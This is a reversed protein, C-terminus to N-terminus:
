FYDVLAAQNERALYNHKVHAARLCGSGRLSLMVGPPRFEIPRGVLLQVPLCTLMAPLIPIPIHYSPIDSIRAPLTQYRTKRRRALHWADRNAAALANHENNYGNAKEAEPNERRALNPICPSPVASTKPPPRPLHTPNQPNSSQPNSPQHTHLTIHILQYTGM